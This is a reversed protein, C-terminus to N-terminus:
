AALDTPRAGAVADRLARGVLVAVLNAKYDASGNADDDPEAADAAAEGAARLVDPDLDDAPLGTLMQEAAAARM